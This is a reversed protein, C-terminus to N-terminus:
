SQVNNYNDLHRAVYLSTGVDSHFYCPSMQPHRVFIGIPHQHIDDTTFQRPIYMLVLRHPAENWSFMDM